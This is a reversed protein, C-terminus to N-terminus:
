KSSGESSTAHVEVFRDRLRTPTEEDLGASRLVRLMGGHEADLIQLMVHMTEAPSTLMAGPPSDLDIDPWTDAADGFVVALRELLPRRNEDTREYDRAIATADAGLVALLAAAFVGTRDKGAACHFLVGGESVSAIRLGEVIIQSADILMEVYWRGMSEPTVAALPLGIRLEHPASPVRQLPLLHHNTDMSGLRGRGWRQLEEPSRLDLITSIGREVLDSAGNADILTVDDARFVFGSRVKGNSVPIGGLDRFNALPYETRATATM